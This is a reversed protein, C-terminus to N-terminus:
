AAARERSGRKDKENLFYLVAAIAIVAGFGAGTAPLAKGVGEGAAKAGAGIGETVAKLDPASKLTTEPTKALERISSKLDDLYKVQETDWPLTQGAAREAEVHTDIVSTAEALAAAHKAVREDSAIKTADIENRQSFWLALVGALASAATVIAIAGLWPFIGTDATPGSPLAGDETEVRVRASLDMRGAKVDEQTVGLLYVVGWLLTTQWDQADTSSARVGTSVVITGNQSSPPEPSLAAAAMLAYLVLSRQDAVSADDRSWRQQVARAYAARTGAVIGRADQHVWTIGAKPTSSSGEAM